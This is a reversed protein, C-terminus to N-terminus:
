DVSVRGRWARKRCANSCFRADSRTPQFPEGCQECETKGAQRWAELFTQLTALIEKPMAHGKQRLHTRAERIAIERLQERHDPRPSRGTLIRQITRPHIETLDTIRTRGIAQLAPLYLEDWVRQDDGYIPLVDGLSTLNNEIEDIGHGEKGIYQILSRTTRIPRRHLRGTTSRTVPEGTLTVAKPVPNTAWRTVVTRYSRIPILEPEPDDPHRPMPMECIIETVGPDTTVRCSTKTDIEIWDMEEWRQPDTTYPAILRVRQRGLAEPARPDVTTTLAFCFPKISDQYSHGENYGKFHEHLRWTTLATRSVAPKDLWPLDLPELGLAQRVENEWVQRVWERKGRQETHPTDPDTDPRRTPDLLHGLGSESAKVTRPQGPGDLEYLCYRKPSIAYGWLERREGGDTYNEKELELLRAPVKDRQYPHLPEFWQQLKEVHEWTLIQTGDPLLGGTSSAILALADTDSAMFSGGMDAWVRETLALMLRAAATICSAILPFCFEGPAEVVNAFTDFPGDIGHVTVTEPATLDQRNMEVQIGYLSNAMLKLSQDLRNREEQTLDQRRHADKRLEIVSRFLSDSPPDFDLEGRIRISRLGERSGIPALRIAKDVRPAVGQRAAVAVLDPIAFPLPCDATLPHIGLQLRQDDPDWQTRVPLLHEQPQTWGFGVMEKWVGPDQLITPSQTAAQQLLDQLADTCDIIEIHEATLLEWVRLLECVTPYMSLFDVPVVPDPRRRHLTEVLGGYYAHMSAHLAQSHGPTPPLEDLLSPLGITRLHEKALSAASFAKTPQLSLDEHREWETLLAACLYATATVDQRNYDIYTPTVHGHAEPTTKSYEPPLGWERCASALSHRAGSLAAELTHCDLFQGQNHRVGRDRKGPRTFQIIQRGPGLKKIVLRPRWPHDVWDGDEIRGWLGFSFGGHAIGRLASRIVDYALRSLDFPLNFGVVTIGGKYAARWFVRDLFERQSLLQIGRDAAYERLVKHGQPDKTPLDDEYFLWEDCLVVTVLGDQRHLRCYRASGFLLRQTENVTTETDIVLIREIPLQRRARRRRKRRTAPPPDVWTRLFLSQYAPRM